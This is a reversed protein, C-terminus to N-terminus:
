KWLFVKSADIKKTLTNYLFKEMEKQLSPPYQYYGNVNEFPFNVIKSVYDHKRMNKLYSSSIRFSGISIDKIKNFDIKNICERLFESYIKRWGTVYIIPDFCLRSNHGNKIATNINEIRASLSSTKQEYKEIIQQPSLSFAYTMNSSPSYKWINLNKIKTRIEIKTEPSNHAFDNWKKVYGILNELPFFDTDYSACVYINKHLIKKFYDEINVFIVLHGSPYMGKLYCYQCNCICNMVCSSYFFNSNGFDQCVPAGQMIFDNQKVALILSQHQKQKLIDQKPRCFVDKYHDIEIINTNSLKALIDKTLSYDLASKEIYINEFM